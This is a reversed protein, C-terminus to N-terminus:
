VIGAINGGYPTFKPSRINDVEPQCAYDNAQRIRKLFSPSSGRTETKHLPLWYTKDILDNITYSRGSNLTTRVSLSSSERMEADSDLGSTYVLKV